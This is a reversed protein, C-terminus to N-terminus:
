VTLKVSEFPQVPEFLIVIVSGEATVPVIVFPGPKQPTADPVTVADPPVPPYVYVQDGEPPLADVVFLKTLPVYVTVMASAIPQVPVAVVLMTSGGANVIVAVWEFIKHLPDLLAVAVAVADPPLPM